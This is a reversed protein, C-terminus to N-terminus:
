DDARKDEGNMNRLMEEELKRLQEQAEMQERRAEAARHLVQTKMQTELMEPEMVGANGFQEAKFVKHNVLLQALFPIAAAVLGAYPGVKILLDVKEAVKDNDKALTVVETAMPPGFVGIAGADAYAGFALCGFQALQLVGNLAEQRLEDTSKIRDTEDHKIGPDPIQTSSRPMEIREL